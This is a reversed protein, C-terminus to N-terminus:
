RFQSNVNKHTDAQQKTKVHRASDFFKVFSLSIELAPLYKRSFQHKNVQEQYRTPNKRFSHHTKGWCKKSM